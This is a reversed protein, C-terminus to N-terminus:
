EEEEKDYPQLSYDMVMCEIGNITDLYPAFEIWQHGTGPYYYSANYCGYDDMFWGIKEGLPAQKCEPLLKLVDNLCTGGNRCFIKNAILEAWTLQEKTAHFFQKTYPEYCLMKGNPIDAAKKKLEEKPMDEKIIEKKIEEVKEEGIAEKMKSELKGYGDKWFAVAAALAAEKNLHMKESGLICAVTFLGCGVPAIYATWKADKGKQGLKYSLIGTAIVGGCASVSLITPAHEKSFALIDAPKILNLKM